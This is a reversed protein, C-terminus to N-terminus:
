PQVTIRAAGGGNCTITLEGTQTMTMIAFDHAAIRTSQAGVKITHAVLDRNDLMIKTGVKVVMSGPTTSCGNSFQYRTRLGTAGYIGLLQTYKLDHQTASTTAQSGGVSGAYPLSAYASDNLAQQADLNARVAYYGVVLFAAIAVAVLIVTNKKLM